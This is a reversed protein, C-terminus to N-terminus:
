LAACAALEARGARTLERDREVGQLGRHGFAQAQLAPLDGIWAAGGAFASRQRDPCRGLRPVRAIAPQCLVAMEGGMARQLAGGRCTRASGVRRGRASPAGARLGRADRARGTLERIIGPDGARTTQLLSYQMEPQREVDPSVLKAAAEIAQLCHYFRDDTADASIANLIHVRAEAAGGMELCAEAVVGYGDAKFPACEQCEMGDVAACHPRGLLLQCWGRAAWTSWCEHDHLLAASLKGYTTELAALALPHHKGIAAYCGGNTLDGAGRFRTCALETVVDVLVEAGAFEAPRKNALKQLLDWASVTPPVRLRRSARAASLAAAFTDGAGASIVHVALREAEPM